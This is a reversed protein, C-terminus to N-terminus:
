NSTLIILFSIRYPQNGLEAQLHEPVFASNKKAGQDKLWQM